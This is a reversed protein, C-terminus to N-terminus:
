LWERRIDLIWTSFLMDKNIGKISLQQIANGTIAVAVAYKIADEGTMRDVCLCSFAKWFLRLDYNNDEKLSIKDGIKFANSGQVEAINDIVLSVYQRFEAINMDGFMKLDGINTAVELVFTEDEESLQKNCVSLYDCKDEYSYPELMYTVGRSKITPLLNELNECTLIFYAQQPPEETVKLLANAAASSMNDCDAIVYVIPDVLKYSDEICFRINEASTGVITSSMNLKHSIEQALTKKGSGSEGILISFRPFKGREIQGFIKNTVERQGIM